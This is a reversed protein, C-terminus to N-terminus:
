TLSPPKVQGATLGAPADGSQSLRPAPGLHAREPAGGSVAHTGAPKEAEGPPVGAPQGRRDETVGQDMTM